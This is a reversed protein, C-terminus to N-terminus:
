EGHDHHHLPRLPAALMALSVAVLVAAQGVAWFNRGISIPSAVAVAIGQMEVVAFIGLAVRTPLDRGSIAAVASVALTATWAALWFPVSWPMPLTAQAAIRSSQDALWGLQWAALVTVAAVTVRAPTSVRGTM